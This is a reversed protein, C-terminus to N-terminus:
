TGGLIVHVYNQTEHPMCSLWNVGCSHVSNQVAGTGANYAALAKAYDGGYMRDYSAMLRAAAGLAQNPDWPNIGLGAATGPEFQAIGEAGAPSLAQPNFGSEKNIQRVFYLPSVGAALADQQAVAVYPSNPLSQSALQSANMGVLALSRIYGYVTYNQWTAVSLDPLLPETVIPGPGNAEAFTVSGNQSNAPPVIGLVIAIHGVAPPPDWWVMIDGPVPLGRQAPSTGPASSPIEVWGPRNAYLSWFDIANGAAPLPIGALAYAATVMMVCQLNGNQWDAYCGSGPPCGKAWFALVPQPIGTDYYSDPNSASCPGTQRPCQLHQAILGAAQAVQANGGASTVSQFFTTGLTTVLVVTLAMGAMGALAGIGLLRVM